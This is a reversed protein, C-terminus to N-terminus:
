GTRIGVEPEVRERASGDAGGPTPRGVAGRLADLGRRVHSKVTGLPMGTERAIEEHSLGEFFALGLVVRQPVSLSSVAAALVRNAEFAEFWRRQAFDEHDVYTPRAGDPHASPDDVAERTRRRRDIARSWAIAALWAEVSGRAADFHRAHRWVQHFVEVAVEEADAPVRLIRCAIGYVRDFCRDFLEALAPERGEAIAAVLGALPDKCGVTAATAAGGHADGLDTM